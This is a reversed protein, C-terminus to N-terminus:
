IRVEKEIEKQQMEKYKMGVRIGIDLGCCFNQKITVNEINTTGLLKDAIEM